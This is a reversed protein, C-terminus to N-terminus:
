FGLYNFGERTPDGSPLNVTTQELRHRPRILQKSTPRLMEDLTSEERRGSTAREDRTFGINSDVDSSYQWAFQVLKNIDALLIKGDFKKRSKRRFYGRRRLLLAPLFPLFTVVFSLWRFTIKWRETLKGCSFSFSILSSPPLFRAFSSFLEKWQNFECFPFQHILMQMEPIRVTSDLARLAIEM